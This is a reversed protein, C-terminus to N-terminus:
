FGKPATKEAGTRGFPTFGLLETPTAIIIHGAGAILNGGMADQGDPMRKRLEILGVAAGTRQDFVNIADRTPWYVKDGALLGRGFGRPSGQEPWVHTIKGNEANIWWLRDGSALLQGGGVGLLQTVDDAHPAEWLARGSGADLAFLRDCDAPAVFVRGRDYVCPTLDRYFHAAPKALDGTKPRPYKAIWAVQGDRTDLAAVCGLNTNFYIMGQALTLLQHTCEEVMGRAPTQASCIFRRWVLQGTEADYCAVHAQPNVESRREAVYINTGDSVPTGEFAWGEESPAISWLLRGEAHLDLCAIQGSARVPPNGQVSATVQSGMRAFLKNGHATLTFRPVGMAGRSYAARNTATAAVDGEGPYVIANEGWAPRGTRVNFALVHDETSALLLEGVILPHYSLLAGREEGIRRPQALGTALAQNASSAPGLSIPPWAPAGLDLEEPLVRTRTTDGAFTPWDGSRRSTAPWNKAETLLRELYDAYVTDRGAFREKAGPHLEKLRALEGTARELDGDLISVLVLRARIGALDLDTDPYALQRPLGDADLTLPILREWWQRAEATNGQELALEGLLNIADDGRRSCFSERTIRRLLAADATKSAQEFWADAQADVQGRYIKLAEAPLLAIQQHCYDRVGIARWPGVPIVQDGHQEQVLRLVDIVEGWRSSAKAARM